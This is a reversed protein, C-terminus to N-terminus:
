PVTKFGIAVFNFPVPSQIRASTQGFTTSMAVAYGTTTSGVVACGPIDGQSTAASTTPIVFVRPPEDFSFPDTGLKFSFSGAAQIQGSAPMSDSGFLIVAKKAVASTGFRFLGSAGDGSLVIDPAPPTPINIEKWLLGAGNNSLVKNAQGTPDPILLTALWLLISGNNSLVAGSELPTPIQLDAGGPIEVDDMEAVFTGDEDYQRVKYAGEGWCDLLLRGAADLQITSGNSVSLEPNAYVAKPATTGAEFFDVRGGSAPATGNLNYFVRLRDLIRFSAM